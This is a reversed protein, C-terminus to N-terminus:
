LIQKMCMIIDDSLYIEGGGRHDYNYQEVCDILRDYWEQGTMLESLKGPDNWVTLTPQRAMDNALNAMKNVLEQTQKVQGPTIYSADKFAQKIQEIFTKEGIKMPQPDREYEILDELILMLKSDLDNM